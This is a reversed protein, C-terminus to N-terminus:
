LYSHRDYGQLNCIHIYMYLSEYNVRASNSGLSLSSRQPPPPPPPPAPRGVSRGAVWM